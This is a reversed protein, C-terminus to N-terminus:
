GQRQFLTRVQFRVNLMPGVSIVLIRMLETDDNEPVRGLSM